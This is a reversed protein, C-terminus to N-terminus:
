KSGNFKYLNFNGVIKFSTYDPYYKKVHADSWQDNEVVIYKVTGNTYCEDVKKQSAFLLVSVEKQKYLLNVLRDIHAEYGYFIHKCDSFYVVMSGSPISLTDDKIIQKLEAAAAYNNIYISKYDNDHEKRFTYNNSGNNSSILLFIYFAFLILLRREAKHTFTLASLYKASLLILIVILEYSYNLFAGGKLMFLHAAIFVPILTLGLLFEISNLTFEKRFNWAGYICIFLPLFLRAMSGYIMDLNYSNKLDTVNQFNYVFTNKFFYEGYNTICGAYGIFVLLFCVFALTITKINRKSLVLVGLVIGFYFAADQKLLFALLNFIIIFLLYRKKCVNFYFYKIIAYLLIIFFTIKFGDPRTAYFHGTFLLLFCLLLLYTYTKSLKFDMMAKYLIRLCIIMLILNVTRAIILLRHVEYIPNIKFFKTFIVLIDFYFPNYMVAYFPFIDPNRYLSIKQYMLQCNHIFVFEMGELDISFSFILVFRVFLLWIIYLAILHHLHVRQRLNSLITQIKKM